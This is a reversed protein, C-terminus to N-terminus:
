YIRTWLWEPSPSACGTYSLYGDISIDGWCCAQDQSAKSYLVRHSSGSVGYDMQLQIIGHLAHWHSGGSWTLLVRQHSNTKCCSGIHNNKEKSQGLDIVCMGQNAHLFVAYSKALLKLSKRFNKAIKTLEHIGQSFYDNYSSRFHM